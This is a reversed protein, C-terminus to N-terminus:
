GFLEGREATYSFINKEDASVIATKGKFGANIVENRLPSRSVVIDPTILYDGGLSAQLDVHENLVSQLVALHEYQYFLGIGKRAQSVSFHWSGPRVNLLLRFADHLFEKTISSFLAGTAQASPPKSCFPGGLREALGKALAVSTASDADANSYITQNSSVNKKKSPRNRKPRLGLVSACINKHYQRRLQRIISPKM